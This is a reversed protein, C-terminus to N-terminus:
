GDEMAAKIGMDGKIIITCFMVSFGLFFRLRIESSCDVIQQESLTLLQGTNFPTSHNWLVLLLFHMALAM